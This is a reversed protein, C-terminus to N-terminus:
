NRMKADLNLWTQNTDFILWLKQTLCIWFTKLFPNKVSNNKSITRILHTHVLKIFEINLKLWVKSEQLCGSKLQLSLVFVIFSSFNQIQNISFPLSFKGIELSINGQTAKNKSWRHEHTKFSNWPKKYRAIQLM